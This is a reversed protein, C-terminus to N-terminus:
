GQAHRRELERYGELLGDYIGRNGLDPEVPAGAATFPATVDEWSREEGAARAHGHAAMLAAGLAAANTTGLRQVPCGHVDAFVRLIQENESAGGTVRLSRIEVGMWESHIRSSLAQAEIVARANAAADGEDLNQRLVGPRTVRPVIEEDFWPLM